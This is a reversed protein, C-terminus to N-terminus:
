KCELATRLNTLNARMAEFYDQNEPNEIPSLLLTKAGIERALTEALKPSVNEEFFVYTIHKQKAEEALKSLTKASPESDPSLGAIGNQTLNYQQALYAFASHATYFDRTACNALGARYDADLKGLEAILRKANQRYKASNADDIESLKAAIKEVMQKALIPSLWVHPDADHNDETDKITMLNEGLFVYNEYNKRINESYAEFRDGIIFFVKAKEIAMMQSPTPEYDHPEVGAPTLNEVKWEDGAIESAFYYVPYFSAMITPKKDNSGTGHWLFLIAAVVLVAALGVLLKVKVKSFM